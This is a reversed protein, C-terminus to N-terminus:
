IEKTINKGLMFSSYNNWELMEKLSRFYIFLKWGM